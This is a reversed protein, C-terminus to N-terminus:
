VHNREMKLLYDNAKTLVDKSSQWQFADMAAAYIMLYAGALEEQQYVPNQSEYEALFYVIQKMVGPKQPIPHADVYRFGPILHVQLGTEELIERLATEEETEGAECHGKPFGYYGELSQIIVYEVTDATRTFVVAGCSKEYIASM